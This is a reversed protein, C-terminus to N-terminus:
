IKKAVIFYYSPNKMREIEIIQFNGNTILDKLESIKLFNMYPIIELKILPFFLLFQITNLFTKEGMCVTASIFVGGPKLLENIRQVIRKKDELFHLINFALIANFSETKNREHFISSQAFDINEIKSENAKRKAADIMKSSIDIGSVKRVNRAIEIAVTGTACGYDLVIDNANLHKKTKGVPPPEFHKARKDFQKAMRDWFKDTKEM